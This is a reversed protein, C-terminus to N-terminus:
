RPKSHPAAPRKERERERVPRALQTNTKQLASAETKAQELIPELAEEAIGKLACFNARSLNTSSWDRLFEARWRRAAEVEADRARLRAKREALAERAATKHEISLEAVPQGDLDFRHTARTMAALYATTATYRRLFTTLASRTFRGPARLAIDAQIRLKLPKIASSFLAPFLQKLLVGAAAGDKVVAAHALPQSGSGPSDTM